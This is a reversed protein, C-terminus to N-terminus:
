RDTETTSPDLFRAAARRPGPQSSPDGAGADIVPEDSGAVIQDEGCLSGVATVEEGGYSSTDLFTFPDPTTAPGGRARLRADQLPALGALMVFGVRLRPYLPRVVARHVHWAANMQAVYDSLASWWRPVPGRPRPASWPAPGPHVLLPADASALAELLPAIRGVDGPHGIAGAPLCLGVAGRSLLDDLAAPEPRRLPVAAWARFVGGLALVEDNYTRLIAEAEREPLSEIGLPCSPAIVVRELGTARAHAARRGPDHAAESVPWTPEGAAELMWGDEGRRIRPQDRRAALASLLGEPWLHQHIDTALARRVGTGRHKSIEGILM